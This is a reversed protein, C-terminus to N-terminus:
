SLPLMSTGKGQMEPWRDGKLVTMWGPPVQKYAERMESVSAIDLDLLIDCTEEKASGLEGRLRQHGEQHPKRGLGATFEHLRFSLFNFELSELPGM